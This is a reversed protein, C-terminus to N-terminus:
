RLDCGTTDEFFLFFSSHESEEKNWDQRCHYMTAVSFISIGDGVMVDAGVSRNGSKSATSCSRVGRRTAGFANRLCIPQVSMSVAALGNM